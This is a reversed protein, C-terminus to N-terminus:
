DMECVWLHDHCVISTSYNCNLFKDAWHAVGPNDLLNVQVEIREDPFIFELVM